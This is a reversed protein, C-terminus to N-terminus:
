VPHVLTAHGRGAKPLNIRGQYLMVSERCGYIIALLITKGSGHRLLRAQLKRTIVHRNGDSSEASHRLVVYTEASCLTEASCVAYNHRLVVYNHRLVLLIPLLFFSNHICWLSLQKHLLLSAMTKSVGSSVRTPKIDVELSADSM